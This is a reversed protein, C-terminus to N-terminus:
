PFSAKRVQCLLEVSGFMRLVGFAGLEWSTRDVCLFM